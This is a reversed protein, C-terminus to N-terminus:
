NEYDKLKKYQKYKRELYINSDKYIFDLFQITQDKGYIYLKHVNKNNAISYIKCKSNFLKKNIYNLFEITSIISIQFRNKHISGDGDFLGRLFDRFYINNKIKSFDFFESKNEGVGNNLLDNKIMKSNVQFRSNYNYKNRRKDFIKYSNVKNSSNIEKKFKELILKDTNKITFCICNKNKIISGDALIFGLFYAKGETDINEFYSENKNFDTKM